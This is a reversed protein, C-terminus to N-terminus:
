RRKFICYVNSGPSLEFRTVFEYSDDWRRGAASTARLIRDIEGPRLICWEPKFRDAIELMPARTDHRYATLVEPSVLGVVDLVRLGSYYGVYGIPELMIRDNPGAHAKLWLAMPIRVREEVM